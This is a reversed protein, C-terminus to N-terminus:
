PRSSSPNRGCAIRLNYIRASIPRTGSPSSRCTIPAPGAYGILRLRGDVGRGFMVYSGATAPGESTGTRGIHLGVVMGDVYTTHKHAIPSHRGEVCLKLQGAEHQTGDPLVFPEAISATTCNSGGSAIAPATVAFLTVLVFGGIVLAKSHRTRSSEM